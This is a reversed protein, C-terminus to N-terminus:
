DREDWSKMDEIVLSALVADHATGHILLAKRMVGERVAGVKEAVRQSALNGVAAVIEIRILNLEEFGFRAIMRAARTASGRGAAGTRIWYGLNASRYAAKIQNLGAAGLLADTRADTIRFGYESRNENTEVQSSIWQRADEISYDPHCWHMWPMLESLSERIAEYLAPADNMRYPRLSIIGDTMEM